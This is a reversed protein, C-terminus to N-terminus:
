YGSDLLLFKSLFLVKLISFLSFVLYQPIKDKFSSKWCKSKSKFDVSYFWGQDTDTKLFVTLQRTNPIHNLLSIQFEKKWTTGFNLYRHEWELRSIIIIYIWVFIITLLKRKEMFYIALFFATKLNGLLIKEEQIKKLTCLVYKQYCKNSLSLSLNSIITEIM